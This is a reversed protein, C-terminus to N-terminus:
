QQEQADPINEHNKDESSDRGMSLPMWTGSKTKFYCAKKIWDYKTEVDRTHGDYQCGVTRWLPGLLAYLYFLFFATHIVYLWHRKEIVWEMPSILIPDKRRKCVVYTVYSSLVLWIVIGLYFYSM